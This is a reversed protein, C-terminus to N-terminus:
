GQFLRSNAPNGSPLRYLGRRSSQRWGLESLRDYDDAGFSAQGHRVLHVSSMFGIGGLTGPMADIRRRHRCGARA